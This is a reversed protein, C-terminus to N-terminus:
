YLKIVCVCVVGCYVLSGLASVRGGKVDEVVSVVYIRLEYSKCM